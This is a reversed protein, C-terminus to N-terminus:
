MREKLLSYIVATISMAMVAIAVHMMQVPLMVIIFLGLLLGVLGPLTTDRQVIWMMVFPIAFILILALKGMAATYAGAVIPLIGSWNIAGSENTIIQDNGFLDLIGTYMSTSIPAITTNAAPRTLNLPTSTPGPTPDSTTAYRIIM